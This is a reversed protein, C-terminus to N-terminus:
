ELDLESEESEVMGALKKLENQMERTEHIRKRLEDVGIRWDDMTTYALRILKEHKDRDSERMQAEKKELSREFKTKIWFIKKWRPKDGLMEYKQAYILLSRQSKASKKKVGHMMFPSIFLYLALFGLRKKM